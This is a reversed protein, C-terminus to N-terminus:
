LLSRYGVHRSISPIRHEYFANHGQPNEDGIYMIKNGFHCLKSNQVSYYFYSRTISVNFRTCLLHTVTKTHQLLSQMFFYFPFLFFSFCFLFQCWLFYLLQLFFSIQPYSHLSETHTIWQKLFPTHTVNVRESDSCSNYPMLLPTINIKKLPCFM